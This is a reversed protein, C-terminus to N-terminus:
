CWHGSAPKWPPISIAPASFHGPTSQTPFQVSRILPSQRQRLRQERPPSEEVKLPSTKLVSLTLGVARQRPAPVARCPWMTHLLPILVFPTSKRSSQISRFTKGLDDSWVWTLFLFGQGRALFILPFFHSSQYSHLLVRLKPYCSEAAQLRARM